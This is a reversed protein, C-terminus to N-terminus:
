RPTWIRSPTRCPFTRTLSPSPCARPATPQRLPRPAKPPIPTSVKAAGTEKPAEASASQVGHQAQEKQQSVNGKLSGKMQASNGGKMFNETDGLTKPMQKDIEARLIALFSQKEPKKTPAEEIKSVQEAKGTALKENPPGKAAAAAQAAKAAAPAHAKVRASGRKLEDMVKRFRPDAQPNPQPLPRRRSLLAPM